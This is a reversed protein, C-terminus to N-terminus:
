TTELLGIVHREACRGLAALDYGGELLSVVRGAASEEAAQVILGTLWSYDGDKLRLAGLPDDEHADFGASVLILQPAHAALAPLWDREIAARFGSSDTGATLPTFVLHPASLDTMRDPYFPHQFSSAVLVRPDSAFIEATGNGHHVDFDLIAVRELGHIDLARRAAIAVSNLFCFGMPVETEAHHGPPRVACFARKWEGAMVGDVARTASGAAHRAASITEACMYTDSHVHALGDVPTISALQALHQHTHVRFVDADAVAGANTIVELDQTLGSRAFRDLIHLVRAPAEPHDSQLRHELCLPHHLLAVNM